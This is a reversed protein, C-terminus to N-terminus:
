PAPAGPPDLRALARQMGDLLSAPDKEDYFYRFRPRPAAVSPDLTGDSSLFFTRPIYQGDPSYRTNLEPERDSDLRVMVFQKARAVVRPDDFVKSFNKCHPCWTAFFVLCIPKHQAKATAVGQQYSQWSIQADNWDQGDHAPAAAATPAPAPAPAARPAVTAPPDARHEKAPAPDGPTCSMAGCVGLALVLAHRLSLSGLM